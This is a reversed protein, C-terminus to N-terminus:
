DPDPITLGINLCGLNECRGEDDLLENCTFCRPCRCPEQLLGPVYSPEAGGMSEVVHVQARVGCRCAATPIGHVIIVTIRETM